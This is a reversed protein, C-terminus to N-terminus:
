PLSRQITSVSEPEEGHDAHLHEHGPGAHATTPRVPAGDHVVRGHRLVVSRQLLRSMGNPEHLVVVITTGDAHLRELLSVITAQTPADVGTMPEDLLLLEPRRVLARAITVRQQQGGSLHQLATGARDALGVEDLAQMARARAGRRLRLTRRNLMGTLVVELATAPIGSTAHARQPVYGIREWPVKGHNRLPVGFLEVQGSTAPTIGLLTRMLTSKGSGNAGLLAVAEGRDIRLSVDTLVPAAGYAVQLHHSTVVASSATAPSHRTPHPRATSM